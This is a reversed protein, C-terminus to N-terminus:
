ESIDLSVGHGKSYFLFKKWFGQSDPEAKDQM